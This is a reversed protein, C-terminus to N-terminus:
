LLFHHCSFRHHRCLSMSQTCITNTGSWSEDIQCSRSISGTLEYGDNCTFTCTEGVDAEGDGGLSCNIDGNDPVTLPLCAIYVNYM